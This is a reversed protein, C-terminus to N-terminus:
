ELLNGLLSIFVDRTNTNSKTTKKFLNLELLKGENCGVVIYTPRGNITHHMTM